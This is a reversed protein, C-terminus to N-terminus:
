KLFITVYFGIICIISISILLYGKYKKFHEKQKQKKEQKAEYLQQEFREQAEPNAVLYQVNPDYRARYMGEFAYGADKFLVILYILEALTITFIIYDIIGFSFNEFPIVILGPLTYFSGCALTGYVFYIYFPNEKTFTYIIGVVLILTFNSAIIIFILNKQMILILFSMVFSNFLGFFLDFYQFIDREESSQKQKTQM